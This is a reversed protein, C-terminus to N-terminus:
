VIDDFLLVLVLTPALVLGAFLFADPVDPGAVFDARVDFLAGGFGAAGTAVPLLAFAGVFLSM